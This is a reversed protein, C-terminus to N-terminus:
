LIDYLYNIPHWCSVLCCLINELHANLRTVLLDRHKANECFLFICANKWKIVIMNLSIFIVKFENWKEVISISSRAYFSNWREFSRCHFFFAWNSLVLCFGTNQTTFFKLWRTNSPWGGHVRLMDDWEQQSRWTVLSTITVYAVSNPYFHHFQVYWTMSLGLCSLCTLQKAMSHQTRPRSNREKLVVWQKHLHWRNKKKDRWSSLRSFSAWIQQGKVVETIFFCFGEIDSGLTRYRIETDM